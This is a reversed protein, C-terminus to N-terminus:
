TAFMNKVGFGIFVSISLYLAVIIWDLTGFQTQSVAQSFAEEM